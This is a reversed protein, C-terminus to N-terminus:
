VFDSDDVCNNGVKSVEGGKVLLSSGSISGDNNAFTIVMKSDSQLCLESFSSVEGAKHTPLRGTNLM